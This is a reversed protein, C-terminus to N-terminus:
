KSANDTGNTEPSSKTALPGWIYLVWNSPDEVMEAKTSPFREM